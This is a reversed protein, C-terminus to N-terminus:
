PNEVFRDIWRRTASPLLANRDVKPPEAPLDITTLGGQATVEHRIKSTTGRLEVDRYATVVKGEIHDQLNAWAVAAEVKAVTQLEDDNVPVGFAASSDGDKAADVAVSLAEWVKKARSDDWGFRAMVKSPPVFIHLPPGEAEGIEQGPVFQKADNPKITISHFQRADNPAAPQATVIMSWEHDARLKGWELHQTKSRPDSTPMTSSDLASRFYRTAKGEHDLVFSFRFIKLEQDIIAVEVPAPKLDPIPTGVISGGNTTTSNSFRNQVTEHVKPPQNPSKSGIGRWTLEAAHDVFVPATAHAGTAQDAIAVRYPRINRLRSRYPEALQYDLRYSARWPPMRRQWVGSPDLDPDGYTELAASLWADNLISFSLPPLGAPEKGALWTLYDEQRRWETIVADSGPFGAADEPLKIIADARPAVSGGREATPPKTGTEEHDIRVEVARIFHVVVERPRERRRDQEAWTPPGHILPELGAGRAGREATKTIDTLGVLLREGRDKRNYLVLEGSARLFIGPMAGMESLVQALGVDPNGSVELGEVDPLNIKKSAVGDRDVWAKGGNAFDLADSLVRQPTWAKVGGDMSWAEYKFRDAITQTAIPGQGIRKVFGTKVRVNYSRRFYPGYAWAWRRDAITLIITHTDSPTSAPSLGLITLMEITKVGLGEVSYDLVLTSGDIKGAKFLANAVEAALEFQGVWPATGSTEEWHIDGEVDLLEGDLYAKM